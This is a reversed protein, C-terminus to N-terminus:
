LAIDRKGGKVDSAQLLSIGGLLGGDLSMVPLPFSNEVIDQIDLTEAVDVFRVDHPLAAADPSLSGFM